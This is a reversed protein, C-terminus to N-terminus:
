KKKRYIVYSSGAALSLLLLFGYVIINTEDGTVAAKKDPEKKDGPEGTGPKVQNDPKGPEVPNEQSGPKGPVTPNDQEGPNGPEATEKEMGMAYLSNHSTEFTVYGDRVKAKHEKVSGDPALYFIHLKKDLLNEPVKFRVTIADSPKYTAGAQMLKIEYILEIQYKKLFETDKILGLQENKQADTLIGAELYVNDHLSGTIEVGTNEDKIVNNEIIKSKELANFAKELADAAADIDQQSKDDSNLLIEKANRLQLKFAEWTKVTYEKAELKEYEATMAELKTTDGRLVLQKAAGELAKRAATIQRGDANSDSETLLAHELIGSFGSWSSKTYAEEKDKYQAILASLNTKDATLGAISNRLENHVVLIKDYGADANNLIEIGKAAAAQLASWTESTYDLEDLGKISDTMAQIEQRLPAADKEATKYVEFEYFSYALIYPGTTREIGAFKVYRASVPEFREICHGGKGNTVHAVEKYDSDNGTESVYIKYEKGFAAEWFIDVRDITQVSGLDVKFWADFRPNPDTQSSWRSDKGTRDGDVAKDPSFKSAETGSATAAKNLALNGAEVEKDVVVLVDKTKQIKQVITDVPESAAAEKLEALTNILNVATSDSVLELYDDIYKQAVAITDNAEKLTKTYNGYAEEAEATVAALTESIKGAQEKTSNRDALLSEGSLMQEKLRDSIEAPIKGATKAATKNAELLANKLDSKAKYIGNVVDRDKKLAVTLKSIEDRGINQDALYEEALTLKDDYDKELEETIYDRAKGLLEAGANYESLLEDRVNPAYVEFEYFSYCEIWPGTTREIGQFKVYRARVPEFKHTSHGGKGDTVDAVEKYNVDDESVLIKYRKGYAAEWYIDVSGITQESGLDVKFWADFVANEGRQSSWRSDKGTRDGDVAKDPSFKAEESGSATAPKNLALNKNEDVAMGALDKIEKDSLVRDYVKLNDAEGKFANTRSGFYATPLNLTEYYVPKKYAGSNPNYNPLDRDILREKFKGNVYLSTGYPDGTLTIQTWREAPVEYDFYHNYNEVSFGLKNTDGQKLKLTGSRGEMLVADKPNDKDPKIWMSTTWGYGISETDTKIYSENGNFKLAKGSKGGDESTVNKVETFALGDKAQNDTNEGDNVVAENDAYAKHEFLFQSNPAVGLKDGLAKFEAYPKTSETNSWTKQAVSQINYQMRFSMDWVSIGNGIHDNWLAFFGGKLRPFGLPIHDNGGNRIINPQWSNYLYEGRGYQESYYGGGPVIYVDQDEMTVIDYGQYMYKAADAYGRYWGLMLADTTVPTNGKVEDLSGWFAGRKGPYSNIHRLLGDAYGRFAEKAAATHAVKYEDTGVNVEPGVFVPNDGGLYEDFLAKVRELSEPNEIDMYKPSGKVALDPWARTLALAHGPSDIEPIINVNEDMGDFQLKRFEDKTYHGDTATLGPVDSELRFASYLENGLQLPEWIDNDNLHLQLTNMKYYSMQKMLDYLYDLPVYKRAVDLMFGRKEYMPYDRSIGKPLTDRGSSQKLIQLVSMTGYYVGSKEPAKIGAWGKTGDSGGFELYYGEKGLQKEGGISLFLDGAKPTDSYTVEFDLGCLAQLDDHFTGAIKELEARDSTKVVIRSQETLTVNGSGGVWERLSPIVDPKKNGGDTTIPNKRAPITIKANTRGETVTGDTDSTLKYVLSVETDNLPREVAADLAIIEKHSSGLLSVQYGDLTPLTLTNTDSSYTPAENFDQLPDAARVTKQGQILYGAAVILAATLIAKASKRNLM